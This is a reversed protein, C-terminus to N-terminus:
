SVRNTRGVCPLCNQQATLAPALVGAATAVYMVQGVATVRNELDVVDMVQSEATRVVWHLHDGQAGVTVRDLRSALLPLLQTSFQDDDCSSSM